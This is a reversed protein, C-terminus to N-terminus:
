ARKAALAKLLAYVVELRPTKAGAMRARWLPEGWIADIELDRGAEWDLLTSPKYSGMAATRRIQEDIADRGLPHGCANAAAVVEEMLALTAQRLSDDALIEATDVGGALTSLGNFPINWVLKRWRELLLDDIVSCMVGAHRFEMAVEHTRPQAARRYEGLVIDGHAYREIETRSIRRLGIFCLGGLIRHAGFHKALFEENALGNQLTLLMTSEHLLPPLLDILAGNATTKIAVLVLDCPGIEATSNYCNINAVRVHEGPGHIDFGSRQITELDGRVLFHVDSGAAALKGGYYGGIAGSGVVAIRFSM